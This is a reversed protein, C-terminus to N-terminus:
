KPFVEPKNFSNSLHVFYLLSRYECTHYLTVDIYQYVSMNETKYNIFSSFVFM